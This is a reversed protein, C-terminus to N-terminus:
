HILNEILECVNMATLYEIGERDEYPTEVMRNMLDDEAKRLADINDFSDDSAIDCLARTANCIATMMRNTM